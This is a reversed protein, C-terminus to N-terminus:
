PETLGCEPYYDLYDDLVTPCIELDLPDSEFFRNDGVAYAANYTAQMLCFSSVGRLDACTASDTTDGAGGCVVPPDTAWDVIFAQRFAQRCCDGPTPDTACASGFDATASGDENVVCESLARLYDSRLYAESVLPHELAGCINGAANDLSVEISALTSLIGLQSAELTGLLNESSSAQELAQLQAFGRYITRGILLNSEDIDNQSPPFGIEALRIQDSNLEDQNDALQLIISDGRMAPEHANCVSLDYIISALSRNLRLSEDFDPMGGEVLVDQVERVFPNRNLRTNVYSRRVETTGTAVGSEHDSHDTARIFQEYVEEGFTERLTDFDVATFDYGNESTVGEENLMRQAAFPQSSRTTQNALVIWDHRYAQTQVYDNGFDVLSQELGHLAVFLSEYIGCGFVARTHDLRQGFEDIAEELDPEPSDVATKVWTYAAELRDLATKLDIVDFDSR